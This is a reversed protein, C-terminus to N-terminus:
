DAMSMKRLQLRKGDFGSDWFISYEYADAKKQGAPRQADSCAPIGLSFCAKGTGRPRYIFCNRM